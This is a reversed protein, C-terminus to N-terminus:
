PPVVVGPGSASTMDDLQYQVPRLYGFAAIWSFSPRGAKMLIFRVRPAKITSLQTAGLQPADSGTAPAIPWIKSWAGGDLSYAFSAEGEEWRMLEREREDIRCVLRGAEGQQEITLKVAVLEGQPVCLTQQPAMATMVIEAPSGSLMDRPAPRFPLTPAPVAASALGRFASEEISLAVADLGRMGIRLNDSVSRSAIPLIVSLILSAVLLAIIAELVSFGATAHSRNLKM